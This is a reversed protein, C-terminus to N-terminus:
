SHDRQAKRIWQQLELFVEQRAERRGNTAPRKGAGHMPGEGRFLWADTVGLAPALVLLAPADPLAEGSLWDSVTSQHRRVRRGLERQTLGSADFAMRLRRWFGEIVADDPKHRKPM